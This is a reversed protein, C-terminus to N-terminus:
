QLSTPPPQRPGVPLLGRLPHPSYAEQPVRASARAMSSAGMRRSRFCCPRDSRPMAAASVFRRTGVGRPPM